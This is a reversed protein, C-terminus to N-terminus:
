RTRPLVDAPEKESQSCREYVIRGLSVAKADITRTALDSLVVTVTWIVVASMSVALGYQWQTATGTIHAAKRAAWHGITWIVTGHILYMSYSIYGLYQPFPHTFIRQLAPTRDITFVLGVAALPMYWDDLAKKAKHFPPLWAVLTRYGPTNAAGHGEDPISLVYLCVVFCVIKYITWRLHRRRTRLTPSSPPPPLPPSATTTTATETTAAASLAGHGGVQAMEVFGDADVQRPAPKKAVGLGEFEFHLDCILMGSFFLFAQWHIYFLAFVTVGAVFLMRMRARFRNFAAQCLFLVMSMDFEVPLTWENQDYMFFMGRSLTTSLPNVMTIFSRLWHHFQGWLTAAQPPRRTPIAVGKWDKGGYLDLYTMLAAVLSVVLPMLFLRTYRRFVGSNIAEAAEALRGQRSLRLPKYSLAYGSIVFFVSVHPPGSIVLRVIPLQILWHAGRESGYGHHIIWSFWLLSAHHWVVFFAAVGRLGDLYATPHLKKPPTGPAVPQLFSPVLVQFEELQAFLAPWRGPGVPTYSRPPASASSLIAGAASKGRHFPLLVLRLLFLPLAMLGALLNHLVTTVIHVWRALASRNSSSATPSSPPSSFSTLMGTHGHSSGSGSSNSNSRGSMSGLDAATEHKLDSDDLNEATPLSDYLPQIQSSAWRRLGRLSASTM